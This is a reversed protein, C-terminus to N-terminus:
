VKENTKEIKPQEQLLEHEAIQRAEVLGDARGNHYIEAFDNRNAMREAEVQKEVLKNTLKLCTDVCPPMVIMARAKQWDDLDVVVHGQLKDACESEIKPHRHLFSTDM